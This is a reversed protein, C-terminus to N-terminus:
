RSLWTVDAAASGVYVVPSPESVSRTYFAGYRFVTSPLQTTVRAGFVPGTRARYYSLEDAPRADVRFTSALAGVLVEDRQAHTFFEGTASGGSEADFSLLDGSGFTPTLLLARECSRNHRALVHAREASCGLWRSLVGQGARFTSPSSGDLAAAQASNGGAYFIRTSSYATVLGTLVPTPTPPAAFDMSVPYRVLQLGSTMVYLHEGVLGSFYSGAGASGALLERPASGDLRLRYLGLAGLNTGNATFYAYTEDAFVPDFRVDDGFPGLAASATHTSADYAYLESRGDGRFLQLMYRQDGLAHAYLSTVVVNSTFLLDGSGAATLTGVRRVQGSTVVLVDELLGEPSVCPAAQARAPTAPETAPQELWVLSWERAAPPTAQCTSGVPVWSFYLQSEARDMLNSVPWSSCLEGLDALTSVQAPTPPGAAPARGDLRFLKGDAVYLVSAHRETIWGDVGLTGESFTAFRPLSGTTGALLGSSVDSVWRVDTGDHLYDYTRELPEPVGADLPGADHEVGGDSTGLEATPGGQDNGQDLRGLDPPGGDPVGSDGPNGMDESSADGMASDPLAGQDGDLPATDGCGPCLWATLLVFLIWELAPSPPFSPALPRM